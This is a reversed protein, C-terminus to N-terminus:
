AARPASIAANATAEPSPGPQGMLNLLGPGILMSATKGISSLPAHSSFGHLLACTGVTVPDTLLSNSYHTYLVTVTKVDDGNAPHESASSAGASMGSGQLDLLGPGVYSRLGKTVM